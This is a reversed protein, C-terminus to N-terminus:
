RRFTLHKKNVYLLVYILAAGNIIYIYVNQQGSTNVTNESKSVINSKSYQSSQIISRQLSTNEKKDSEKKANDSNTMLMESVQSESPKTDTSNDSSSETETQEIVHGVEYIPFSSNHVLKVSFLKNPNDALPKLEPDFLEECEYSLSMEEVTCQKKAKFVVEAIDDNNFDKGDYVVFSWRIKGPNGLYNDSGSVTCSMKEATLIDDDYYATMSLGAAKKVEGITFVLRVEEGAQIVEEDAYANSSCCMVILLVIIVHILIKKM